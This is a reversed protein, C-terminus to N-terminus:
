NAASVKQTQIVNIYPFPIEIGNEALARHVRTNVDSVLRESPVTAKYYVNTVLKLSSNEFEMFYVDGYDKGNVTDRGPITYESDIIANRIVKIAKEVDSGYAIHFTFQAARNTSHYSFNKLKMSNLRSNPIILKQTEMSALVVHRMTIDVVIGAVGDELEIRNGIEFPKYISIMLGALVDKIVDQAAFALVASIIATGGLFTKWISSIGGFGSLALITGAILIIAKNIREFFVIHIGGQKKKIREFVLHNLRFLWWMTLIITIIALTQFIFNKRDFLIRFVAFLKSQFDNPVMAFM